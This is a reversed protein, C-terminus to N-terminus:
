INIRYWEWRITLIFDKKWVKKRLNKIHTDVTRDYIYKDYWIIEKMITDRTVIKWKELIIKKLIFYENWTL